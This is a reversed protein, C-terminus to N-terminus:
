RDVCRARRPDRSRGRYWYVRGPDKPLLPRLGRKEARRYATGHTARFDSGTSSSSWRRRRGRANTILIVKRGEERWQRLRDASGPYLRVGDHIVGWIDCLIVRYREPLADLATM